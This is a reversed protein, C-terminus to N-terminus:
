VREEHSDSIGSEKMFGDNSAPKFIFNDGENLHSTIVGQFILFLAALLLRSGRRLQM